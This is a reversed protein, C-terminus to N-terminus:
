DVIAANVMADIVERYHELSGSVADATVSWTPISGPADRLTLPPARIASYRPM